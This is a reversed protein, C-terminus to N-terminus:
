SRGARRAHILNQLELVWHRKISHWVDGAWLARVNTPDYDNIWDRDSQSLLFKETLPVNWHNSGTPLRINRVQAHGTPEFFNATGFGLYDGGFIDLGISFGTFEEVSDPIKRLRGNMAWQHPIIRGM